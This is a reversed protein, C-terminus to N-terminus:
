TIISIGSNQTHFRLDNKYIDFFYEPYSASYMIASDGDAGEDHCGFFLLALVIPFLKNM